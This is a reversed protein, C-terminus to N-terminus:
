EKRSSSQWVQSTPIYYEIYGLHMEDFTQAGWRVTRTPDPNAPNKDSNDYWATFRLTDGARLSLPELYRYLLQWNFDYRPIDLLTTTQGNARTVEYKCAKGRLHMHPLFGMIAADVPLRLVAEERHNDAGPPIRIRTNVIGAVRVEHQPPQKAWILGIRSRDTTATGNPTYHMQFRLRTGKPLRKAFGDPYLPESKWGTKVTWGDGGTANYFAILAQRQSSAILTAAYDQADIDAAIGAYTNSAPAFTYYSHTPTVTGSFGYSVTASYAGSADTVPPGPLGTMTVGGLPSGGATVTGSVTYTLLTAAYDQAAQDATLHSYARSVPAFTYGALVPTVTGSWDVDLTATYAGSADTVTGDPLGSLVVGALPAGGATVTGSIQVETQLWAIASAEASDGSEVVNLNNAHADTVTRVVFYYRTGPTLGTVQVSSATKNETQGALTYPGGATESILVRYYGADATYPIPQWSVMVVCNDLSTATVGTPAVTQTAAWDPDNSDLFTTLAPDMSYLANYGVNTNAPDLSTLGTLSAPIPGSLRNGWLHLRQLAALGGLWEPVPGSLRNLALALAQLNNLGALEAPIADFKGNLAILYVALGFFAAHGFSTLGNQRIMFGIATALIAYIVSQTMLTLALQSSVM